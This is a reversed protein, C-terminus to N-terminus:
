DEDDPPYLQALAEGTEPFKENECEDLTDCDHEQFKEMVAKCVELRKSVPLHKRVVPWIDNFLSSGSGWGM